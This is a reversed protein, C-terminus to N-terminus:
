EKNESENMLDDKCHQVYWDHLTKHPWKIQWYYATIRKMQEPDLLSCLKCLATNVDPLPFMSIKAQQSKEIQEKTMLDQVDFYMRVKGRREIESQDNDDPSDCYCPM